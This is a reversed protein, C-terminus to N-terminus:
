KQYLVSLSYKYADAITYKVEKKDSENDKMFGEKRLWFRPLVNLPHKDNLLVFMLIYYLCTLFMAIHWKRTSSFFIFYMIVVQIVPLKFMRQQADTFSYQIQRSGLQVVFTTLPGILADM